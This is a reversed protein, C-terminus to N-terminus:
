SKSCLLMRVLLTFDLSFIFKQDGDCASAMSSRNHSTLENFTACSISTWIFQVAGYMDGYM